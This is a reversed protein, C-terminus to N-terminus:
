KNRLTKYCLKQKTEVLITEGPTVLLKHKSFTFIKSSKKIQGTHIVNSLTSETKKTNKFKQPRSERISNSRKM